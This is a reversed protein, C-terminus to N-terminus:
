ARLLSDRFHQAVEVAVGPPVISMVFDADRVLLNDDDIVEIGARRVREISAASRDKLSTMVRAGCERLRRGVAAGMEGAGIVVVPVAAAENSVSMGGGEGAAHGQLEHRALAGRSEDLDRTGRYR